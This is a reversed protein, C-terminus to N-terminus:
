SHLQETMDLEKYGWTWSKTAQWAGKDMPKELCSYQLPKGNEEGPSRGLGLISGLDGRSCAPKKVMCPIGSSERLHRLIKPSKKKRHQAAHPIKTGWGSISNKAGHM